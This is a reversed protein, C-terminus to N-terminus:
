HRIRGSDTLLCMCPRLKGGRKGKDTGDRNKRCGGDDCDYFHPHDIRVGCVHDSKKEYGRIPKKWVKCQSTKGSDRYEFGTCSEEEDECKDKCWRYDIDENDERKYLDYEKGNKGGGTGNSRKRCAGPFDVYAHKYGILNYQGQEKGAACLTSGLASPAALLAIISLPILLKM